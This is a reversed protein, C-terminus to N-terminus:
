DDLNFDRDSNGLITSSPSQGHFFSRRGRQLYHRNNDDEAQGEKGSPIHNLSDPLIIAEAM